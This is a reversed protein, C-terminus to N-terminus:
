EDFSTGNKFCLHWRTFFIKQLHQYNITDQCLCMSQCPRVILVYSARGHAQAHGLVSKQLEKTKLWSAFSEKTYVNCHVSKQFEGRDVSERMGDHSIELHISM